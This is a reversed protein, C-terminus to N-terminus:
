SEIQNLNSVTKIRDRLFPYKKELTLLSVELADVIKLKYYYKDGKVADLLLQQRQEQLSAIGIILAQNHSLSDMESSTLLKLKMGLKVLFKEKM